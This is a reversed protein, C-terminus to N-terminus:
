GWALLNGTRADFVEYVQQLVTGLGPPRTGSGPLKGLSTPKRASAKRGRPTKGAGSRKKSMSTHHAPRSGGTATQPGSAPKSLLPLPSLLSSVGPTRSTDPLLTRLAPLNNAAPLLTNLVPRPTTPSVLFPGKLRTYYIKAKEPLGPIFIHELRNLSGADTLQVSRVSPAAGNSTSGGVFGRENLYRVVDAVGLLAKGRPPSIAPIGQPHPSVIRVSQAIVAHASAAVVGTCIMAVVLTASVILSKKTRLCFM